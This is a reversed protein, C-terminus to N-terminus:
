CTRISPEVTPSHGRTIIGADRCTSFKTLLRVTHSTDAQRIIGLELAKNCRNIQKFFAVLIKYKSLLYTFLKDNHPTQNHPIPSHPQTKFVFACLSACLLRLADHGLVLSGDCLHSNGPCWNERWVERGVNLSTDAPGCWVRRPSAGVTLVNGSAYSAGPSMCLRNSTKPVPKGCLVVGLALFDSRRQSSQGTKGKGGYWEVDERASLYGVVFQPCLSCRFSYPTGASLSVGSCGTEYESDRVPCCSRWSICPGSLDVRSFRWSYSLPNSSPRVWPGGCLSVQFIERSPLPPIRSSRVTPGVASALTDTPHRASDFHRSTSSM